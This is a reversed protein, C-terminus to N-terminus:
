EDTEEKFDVHYFHVFAPYVGVVVTDDKGNCHGWLKNGSDDKGLYIGVHNPHLRADEDKEGDEDFDGTYNKEGLSNTYYSGDTIIMGLDGIELEEETIEKCGLSIILTSEVCQEPELGALQYVYEVYGSCDLGDALKWGDYTPKMGFNYRIKGVLEYCIDKIVERRELQAQMSRAIINAEIQAQEEMQDYRIAVERRNIYENEIGINVESIGAYLPYDTKATTMIGEDPHEEQFIRDAELQKEGESQVAEISMLLTLMIVAQVMFYRKM